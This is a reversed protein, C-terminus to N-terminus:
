PTAVTLLISSIIPRKQLIDDRKYPEKAFSVYLQISVVLQLWGMTPTYRHWVYWIHSMWRHTHTHTHTHIHPAVSSTVCRSSDHWVCSHSGSFARRNVKTRTNQKIDWMHHWVYPHTMDCGHIHRLSHQECTKRARFVRSCTGTIDCMHQWVDVRAMDCVHILHTMDCVHILRTMDYMSHSRNTLEQFDHTEKASYLRKWLARKCFLGIIKLLRSISAVGDYSHILHTM